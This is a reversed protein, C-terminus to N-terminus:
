EEKALESEKSAAWIKYHVEFDIPVYVVMPVKSNYRLLNGDGRVQVFTEQDKMEPPCAMLTSALGQVSKLIFYTYGWGKAVEETLQGGFWHHNCDVKITKGIILELKHADEDVLLPLNIVMRKYGDEAPPYLKMGSSDAFVFTNFLLISSLVIFKYFRQKM